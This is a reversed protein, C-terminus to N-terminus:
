KIYRYYTNSTYIAALPNHGLLRDKVAFVTVPAKLHQLVLSDHGVCLGLLINFEVNMSNCIEAQLLPNCMTERNTCNIQWEPPIGIESKAVGGVKCATSVVEFDNVEFIKLTVAAEERLGMCFIFGLRKYGMRKAFDIIEVIRPRAPRPISDKHTYGAGEVFASEQALRLQEPNNQLSKLSEQALEPMRETPCSAPHKGEPRVCIRGSQKFPCAACAPLLHESM